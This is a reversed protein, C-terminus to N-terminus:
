GDFNYPVECRTIKGTIVLHDNHHSLVKNEKFIIFFMPGKLKPSYVLQHADRVEKWSNHTHSSRTPNSHITHIVRVDGQAHQRGKLSSQTTCIGKSSEVGRKERNPSRIGDVLDRLYEDSLLQKIEWKLYKCDM